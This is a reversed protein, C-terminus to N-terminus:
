PLGKQNMAKTIALFYVSHTSPSTEIKLLKMESFIYIFIGNVLFLAKGDMRFYGCAELVYRFILESITLSKTKMEEILFIAYNTLRAYDENEM